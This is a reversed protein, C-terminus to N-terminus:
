WQLLGLFFPLLMLAAGLVLIIWVLVRWLPPAQRARIARSTYGGTRALIAVDLTAM